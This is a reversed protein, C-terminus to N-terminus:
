ANDVNFVVVFVVLYSYLTCVLVILEDRSSKITKELLLEIMLLNIYARM